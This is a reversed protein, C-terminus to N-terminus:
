GFLGLVSGIIGAGSKSDQSRRELDNNANSTSASTYDRGFATQGGLADRNMSLVYNQYAQSQEDNLGRQGQELQGQATEGRLSLDGGRLYADGSAVDGSRMTTALGAYQDRATAMERARLAAAEATSRRAADASAASANSAALLPNAGIQSAALNQGTRAAEEQGKRALAEAESPTEGRAARAALDLAQGQADRAQMERSLAERQGSVASNVGSRDLQYTSRGGAGAQQGQLYDRLSNEYDRSNGYQYFQPNATKAQQVDGNFLWSIGGNIGRNANRDGGFGGASIPGGQPASKPVPPGSTLKPAADVPDKQWNM